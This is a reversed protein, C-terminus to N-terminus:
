KVEFVVSAYGGMRVTFQNNEKKVSVTGQCLVATGLADELPFELTASSTNHLVLMKENELTRYWAALAPYTQASTPGYTTHPSMTGTALAPYTNCVRAFTRYLSLMSTSDAAQQTVDAVNAALSADIKDTYSTTYADGWLMPARVYEDGNDKTGTYGLEEGYYIYPSGAATLLLAAAMRAKLLSNGLQTRARVEDHNSLKTAVVPQSRHTAYRERYACLETALNYGRGNELVSQVRSWFSFEFLAPLGAYYPAVKDYESFVEGVMYMDKDHSLRYYENVADYFLKLFRPNEDSNENHYIHKVADLRFGDIGADIWVHADQVIAKFAPSRQATDVAGYNLDAFWDTWFHSHYKTSGPMLVNYVNDNSAANTYLTFPQGFTVSSASETQAGYKTGVPWSSSNSTRILFGWTSTYDVSLSYRNSGTAYFKKCVGDGFYLYKAGSTSTDPNDTDAVTGRTVTVTPRTSNSWDLVFTFVGTHATSAAFWQGSDYGSAGETAIMPITGATIDAQPNDSFIYYDRWPNDSDSLAQTFWSHDRGTHNIVYDLYVDIQRKHAEDVFQKFGDMTGFRENASAYDTVDYGHYSMCPHIPSLWVASAGLADIYDLKDTLGAFDGWGDGDKDAFAYVLLQYTIPARKTGDWSKPAAVVKEFSPETIVVTDTGPTPDTGPTIEKHCASLAGLLLILAGFFSLRTM